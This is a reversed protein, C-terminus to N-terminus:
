SIKSSTFGFGVTFFTFAPMAANWAAPASKMIAIPPPEDISVEFAIPIMMLLGSNESTTDSSPTALVFFFDTGTMASGVVAPVAASTVIM